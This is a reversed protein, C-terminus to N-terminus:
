SLLLKKTHLSTAKLGSLYTSKSRVLNSAYLGKSTYVLDLIM